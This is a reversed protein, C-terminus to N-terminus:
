AEGCPQMSSFAASPALCWIISLGVVSYPKPLFKSNKDSGSSLILPVRRHIVPRQVKPSSCCTRGSFYERVYDYAFKPNAVILAQAFPAPLLARTRRSFDRSERVSPLAHLEARRLPLTLLPVLAKGQSPTEYIDGSRM